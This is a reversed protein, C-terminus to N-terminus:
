GYKIELDNAYANVTDMVDREFKQTARYDAIVDFGDNGYILQIMAAGKGGVDYFTVAEMDTAQLELMVRNIDTHPADDTFEEGDHHRFSYGHSRGKRLLMRVIRREIEIRKKINM